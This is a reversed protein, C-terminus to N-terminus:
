EKKKLQNKAFDYLYFSMEYLLKFYRILFLQMKRSKVINKDKKIFSYYKKINERITNKLERKEKNKSKLINDYVGISYFIYNKIAANRIEPYKKEVFDLLEKSAEMANVNVKKSNTISGRRQRYYYLPTADYVIKSAKDLLKYTTYIDENVKGKPYRINQFIEKKYLKTYASVGLYGYTCMLEIARQSDMVEYFDVTGYPKITNIYAFFRNCCSIDADEKKMNNYLIFYMDESIWDDSDVFGIYEGTANDIGVNRADSLGGNEKHIVKIRNDKKAYEECINGSDDTSGDDVLIIELNKYKQNIISDICKSLYKSVNYVPIVISIKEM